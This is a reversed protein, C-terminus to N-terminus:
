ENWDQLEKFALQDGTQDCNEQVSVPEEKQEKLPTKVRGKFSWIDQSTESATSKVDSSKVSVSEELVNYSTFRFPSKVEEKEEKIQFSKLKDRLEKAKSAQYPVGSGDNLSEIVRSDLHSLFDDYDAVLDFKKDGILCIIRQIEQASSKVQHCVYNCDYQLRACKGVFDPVVAPVKKKSTLVSFTANLSANLLRLWKVSVKRELNDLCLTGIRVIEQASQEIDQVYHGQCWVHLMFLVLPPKKGGENTTLKRLLDTLKCGVEVSEKKSNKSLAQKIKLMIQERQQGQASQLLRVLIFVHWDLSFHCFKDVIGLTKDIINQRQHDTLEQESRLSQVLKDSLARVNQENTLIHLLSLAKNRVVADNSSLLETVLREEDESLVPSLELLKELSCLGIYKVNNNSSKMFKCAQTMAKNHLSELRVGAMLRIAEYIVAQGITEKSNTSTLTSLVVNNLQDLHEPSSPKLLTLLQLIQAQLWPASIGKYDYDERPLRGELAQHQVCLLATILEHKNSPEHNAVLTKLVQVATFVVGPDKDTIASMFKLELQGTLERNTKIM